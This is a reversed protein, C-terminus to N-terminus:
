SNKAQNMNKAVINNNEWIRNVMTSTDRSWRGIANNKRRKEDM